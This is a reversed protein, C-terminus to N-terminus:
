LVCEEANQTSTHATAWVEVCFAGCFCLCISRCLLVAMKILMATKIFMKFM